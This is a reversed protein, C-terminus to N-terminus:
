GHMALAPSPVFNEVRELMARLNMPKPWLEAFGAAQADFGREATVAVAPVDRCNPMQRLARLLQAGNGDPLRIDLMLLAPQLKPAIALASQVDTAVVMDVDPRTRLAARMLQVNVDQDEVYLVQRTESFDQFRM